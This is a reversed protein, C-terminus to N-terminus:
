LIAEILASSFRTEVMLLVGPADFQIQVNADAAQNSTGVQHGIRMDLGEIPWKLGRSRVGKARALPFLSVRAGVDLEISVGDMPLLAIADQEGLLVVRKGTQVLLAHFVALTHDVRRGTFGVGVYGPADTAYLCKEFDTTDQEPLHLVKTPQGTWVTPDQISDMDGIVADPMLGLEAVHDAAGDAAILSPAHAMALDIQPRTAGGGGVLTVPNAFHLAPQKM